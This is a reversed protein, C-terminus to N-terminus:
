SSTAPERAADTVAEWAVHFGHARQCPQAHTAEACILYLADAQRMETIHGVRAQSSWTVRHGVPFPPMPKTAKVWDRVADRHVDEAFDADLTSVVSADVRYGVDDLHKAIEFAEDFVYHELHEVIRKYDPDESERPELEHLYDVVNNFSISTDSAPVTRAEENPNKLQLLPEKPTGLVAIVTGRWTVKGDDDHCAVLQGVISAGLKAVLEPSPPPVFEGFVEPHEHQLKNAIERAAALRVDSRTPRPPTPSPNM